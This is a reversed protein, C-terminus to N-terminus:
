FSNLEKQLQLIVDDKQALYVSYEQQLKRIYFKRDCLKCIEGKTKKKPCKPFVRKRDVCSPCNAIGCFKCFKFHKGSIPKTCSKCTNTKEYNNKDIPEAMKFISDNPSFDFKNGNEMSIMITSQFGGGKTQKFFDTHQSVSGSM